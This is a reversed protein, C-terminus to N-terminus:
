EIDDGAPRHAGRRGFLPGKEIGFGRPECAAGAGASKQHADAADCGFTKSHALEEHAVVSFLRAQEIRQRAMKRRKAHQDTIVPAGVILRQELRAITQVARTRREGAQLM